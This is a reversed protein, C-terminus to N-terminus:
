ILIVFITLCAVFVDALIVIVFSLKDYEWFEKSMVLIATFVFAGFIVVLVRLILILTAMKIEEMNKNKTKDKRHNFYVM